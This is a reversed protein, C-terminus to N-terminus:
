HALAGTPDRPTLEAFRVRPDTRLRALAARASATSNSEAGILTYVGAANPGSGGCAALFAVSVFASLQSLRTKM